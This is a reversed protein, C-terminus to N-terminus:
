HRPVGCSQVIDNLEKIVKITDNAVLQKTPYENNIIKDILDNADKKVKLLSLGCGTSLEKSM